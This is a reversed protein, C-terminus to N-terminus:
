YLKLFFEFFEQFFEFFVYLFKILILFFILNHITRKLDNVAHFNSIPQKCLPCCELTSLPRGEKEEDYVYGCIQCVYKM